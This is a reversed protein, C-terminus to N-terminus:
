GQHSCRASSTEQQRSVGGGTRGDNHAAGGSFGRPDVRKDAALWHTSFVFGCQDRGLDPSHRCFPSITERHSKMLDVDWAGETLRPGVLHVTKEFNAERQDNGAPM